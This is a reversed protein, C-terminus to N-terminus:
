MLSEKAAITRPWFRNRPFSVEHGYRNPIGATPAKACAKSKGSKGSGGAKRMRASRLSSAMM